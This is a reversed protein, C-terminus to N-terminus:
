KASRLMKILDRRCLFRSGDPYNGSKMGVVADILKDVAEDTVAYRVLESLLIDQSEPLEAMNWSDIFDALRRLWRPLASISNWAKTDTAWQMFAALVHVIVKRVRDPTVILRLLLRKASKM